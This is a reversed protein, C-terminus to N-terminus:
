APSSRRAPSTSGGARRGARAVSGERGIAVIRNREVVITGREIVGRGPRADMPVIRAGVLAITGAPKDSAQEFGIAVGATEPEDPKDAGDRVFAFTKRWTARTSIPASRGTSPALTRGTCAGAPTARSARSRSRRPADPRDRDAPREAAAGRRLHAVAGRVGGVQRGAVAGAGPRERIARPRDRWANGTTVSALVTRDGRREQFYIRAGTADFRPNSGEERVLTPTGGGAASAIFIGPQEGDIPDACM